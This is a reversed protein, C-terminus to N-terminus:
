PKRPKTVTMFVSLMETPDPAFRDLVRAAGAVVPLLPSVLMGRVPFIDRTAVKEHGLKGLRQATGQLRGVRFALFTNVKHGVV